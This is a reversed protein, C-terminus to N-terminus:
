GRVRQAFLQENPLGELLRWLREWTATPPGPELLRGGPRVIQVSVRLPEGLVAVSAAVAIRKAERAAEDAWRADVEPLMSDHVTADIQFGAAGLACVTVRLVEGATAQVRWNRLCNDTTSPGFWCSWGYKTWLRRHIRAYEVTADSWEWLRGYKERHRRLYDLAVSIPRNIKYALGLPGMGYNVALVIAKCLKRENPHTDENGDPPILGLSKGLGVYADGQRYDAIINEDGSLTGAILYEQQSFDLNILARGPPPRILGRCWKPWSFIFDRAKPANRGTITGLAHAGDSEDHNGDRDQHFPDSNCRARGDPGIPLEFHRLQSLLSRLDRVPKVEPFREAMRKFTDRHLSLHGSELRPWPWGRANVIEEWRAQKFTTGQWVGYPRDTDRILAGKLPEWNDALTQLEEVDIPVGNYEIKSVELMYRGRFLARPLDIRPLMAPFLKGLADVDQRNYALLAARERDTYPGGRAGLMQMERKNVFPAADIGHSLLAAVLNRGMGPGHGNMLRKYEVCLDLVNVPLCWGLVLRCCLEAPVYYSVYLDDATLDIPPPREGWLWRSEIRGTRWDMATCCVPVPRAGPATSFEFDEFIVRRYHALEPFNDATM